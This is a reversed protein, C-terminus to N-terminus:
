TPPAASRSGPSGPLSPDKPHSKAKTSFALKNHRRNLCTQRSASTYCDAIRQQLKLHEVRTTGVDYTRESQAAISVRERLPSSHSSRFSQARASAFGERLQFM